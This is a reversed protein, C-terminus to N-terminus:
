YYNSRSSYQGSGPRRLTNQIVRASTSPCGADVRGVPLAFSFSLPKVFPVRIRGPSFSIETKHKQVQKGDRKQRFNATFAVARTGTVGLVLELIGDNERIGGGGESTTRGVCKKLIPAKEIRACM